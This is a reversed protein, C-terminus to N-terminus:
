ITETREGLWRALIAALEEVKFPKAVYDDM